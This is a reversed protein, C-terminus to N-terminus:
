SSLDIDRHLAKSAVMAAQAEEVTDYVCFVQDFGSIRFAHAVTKSLSALYLDGDAAQNRVAKLALSLVRLGASSIYPVNDLDLILHLSGADIARELKAGLEPSTSSDIPSSVRLVLIDDQKQEFIDM